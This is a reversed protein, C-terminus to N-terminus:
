YILLYIFLSTFTTILAANGSSAVEWWDNKAKIQSGDQVQKSLKLLTVCDV